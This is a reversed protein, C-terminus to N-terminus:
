TWGLSGGQQAASGDSWALDESEWRKTVPYAGMLCIYSSGTDPTATFVLEAYDITVGKLQDPLEFRFLLRGFGSSETPGITAVQTVSAEWFAAESTISFVLLLLCSLLIMKKKM